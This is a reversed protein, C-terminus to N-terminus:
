LFSKNITKRMEIYMCKSSFPTLKILIIINLCGTANMYREHVIYENLRGCVLTLLLDYAPAFFLVCIPVFSLVFFPSVLLLLLCCPAPFLMCVPVFSLV